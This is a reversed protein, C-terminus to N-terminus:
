KTQADTMDCDDDEYWINRENGLDIPSPTGRHSFSMQFSIDTPQKNKNFGSGFWGSAKPYKPKSHMM